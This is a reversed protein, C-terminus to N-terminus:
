YQESECTVDFLFDSSYRHESLDGFTTEGYHHEYNVWGKASLGNLISKYGIVQWGLVFKVGHDNAKSILHVFQEPNDKSVLEYGRPDICFYEREDDQGEPVGEPELFVCVKFEFDVGLEELYEGSYGDFEVVRLCGAILAGGDAFHYLKLDGDGFTWRKYNQNECFGDLRLCYPPPAQTGDADTIVCCDVVERYCVEVGLLYDHETLRDLPISLGFVPEFDIGSSQGFITKGEDTIRVVILDESAKHMGLVVAEQVDIDSVDFQVCGVEVGDRVQIIIGEGLRFCDGDLVEDFGECPDDPDPDPDPDPTPPDPAPDTAAARFKHGDSCGTLAPLAVLMMLLILLFHRVQM